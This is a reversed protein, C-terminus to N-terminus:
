GAIEGSRELNRDLIARHRDVKGPQHGSGHREVAVAPAAVTDRREILEIGIATETGALNPTLGQAHLRWPSSDRSSAVDIQGLLREIPIQRYCPGDDLCAGCRLRLLFRGRHRNATQQRLGPDASRVTRRNALSAQWRARCSWLAQWVSM